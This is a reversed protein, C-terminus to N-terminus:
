HGSDELSVAIDPFKQLLERDSTMLRTGLERALAVYEADYASCGSAQAIQLVASSEVSYERKLLRREAKRMTEVAVELTMLKRRVYGILVNRFESRWLVPAVWVSDKRYAKFAVETLSGPIWFYALTNADTVIM